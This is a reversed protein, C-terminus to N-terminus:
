APGHNGVYIHCSCAPIQLRKFDSVLFFTSYIRLAFRVFVHIALDSSFHAWYEYRVVSYRRLWLRSSHCFMDNRAVTEPVVPEQWFQWFRSSVTFLPYMLVSSKSHLLYYNRWADKTMTTNDATIQIRRTTPSNNHYNVAEEHMSQVPTGLKNSVNM